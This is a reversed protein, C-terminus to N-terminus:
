VRGNTLTAKKGSFAVWDPAWYCFGIGMNNPIAKITSVLWEFYAKQEQLTDDIPNITVEDISNNCSVILLGFLILFILKKM